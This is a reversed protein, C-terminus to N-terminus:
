FPPFLVGFIPPNIDIKNVSTWFEGGQIENIGQAAMKQMVEEYNEKSNANKTSLAIHHLGPGHEKLFDAYISNDSKPEILEWQM